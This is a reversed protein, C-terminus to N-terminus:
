LPTSGNMLSSSSMMASTACVCSTNTNKAFKSKYSGPAFIGRPEDDISIPAVPKPRRKKVYMGRYMTKPAASLPRKASGRRPAVRAARTRVASSPAPQAADPPSRLDVQSSLDFSGDAGGSM